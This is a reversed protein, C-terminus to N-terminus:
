LTTPRIGMSKDTPHIPVVNIFEDEMRQSSHFQSHEPIPNIWAPLLLLNKIIMKVSAFSCIILKKRNGFISVVKALNRKILKIITIDKFTLKRFQMALDQLINGISTMLRKLIEKPTDLVLGAFFFSKGTELAPNETYSIGLTPELKKGFPMEFDGFNSVNRNDKMSNWFSFDLSHSDLPVINPLPKDDKGTFNIDWFDTMIRGFLDPNIDAQLVKGGQAITFHYSVRSKQNFRFFSQFNQM